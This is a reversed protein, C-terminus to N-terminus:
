PKRSRNVADSLWDIISQQCQWSWKELPVKRGWGMAFIPSSCSRTSGPTSPSPPLTKARTEAVLGVFKKMASSKIRPRAVVIPKRSVHPLSRTPLPAHKKPMTSPLWVVICRAASRDQRTGQGTRGRARVDPGITYRCSAWACTERNVSSALFFSM